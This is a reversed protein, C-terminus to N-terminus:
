PMYYPKGTRYEVVVDQESGDELTITFMVKGEQGPTMFQMLFEYDFEAVRGDELVSYTGTEKMKGDVSHNLIVHLGDMYEYFFELRNGALPWEGNEANEENIWLHISLSGSWGTATNEFELCLRYCGNEQEKLYDTKIHFIRNEKHYQEKPVLITEETELNTLEVRIFELEKQEFMADYMM